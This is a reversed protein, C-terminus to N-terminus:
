GWMVNLHVLQEMTWLEIFYFLHYTLTRTPDDKEFKHENCWQRINETTVVIGHGKAQKERPKFNTIQGSTPTV